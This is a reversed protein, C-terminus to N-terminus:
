FYIPKEIESIESIINNLIVFYGNVHDMSLLGLISLDAGDRLIEIFLENLKTMIGEIDVTPDECSFRNPNWVMRVQQIVPHETKLKKFLSIYTPYVFRTPINLGFKKFIEDFKSENEDLLAQYIQSVFDMNRCNLYTGLENILQMAVSSKEFQKCGESEGSSTWGRFDGRKNFFSNMM